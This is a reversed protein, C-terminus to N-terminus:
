TTSPVSCSEAEHLVFVVGGKKMDKACVPSFNLQPYMSKQKRLAHLKSYKGESKFDKSTSFRFWQEMKPDEMLTLPFSSKLGCRLQKKSPMLPLRTHKPTKPHEIKQLLFEKSFYEPAKDEEQQHFPYPLPNNTLILLTKDQDYEAVKLLFSRIKKHQYLYKQLATPKLPEYYRALNPHVTYYRLNKLVFKSQRYIDSVEDPDMIMGLSGTAGTTKVKSRQQTDLYKLPDILVAVASDKSLNNEIILDDAATFM